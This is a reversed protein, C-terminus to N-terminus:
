YPTYKLSETITSFNLWDKFRTYLQNSTSVLCLAKADELAGHAGRIFAENQEETLFTKTIKKMGYSASAYDHRM